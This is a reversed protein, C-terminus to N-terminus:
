SKDEITLYSMRGRVLLIKCAVYGKGLTRRHLVWFAEQTALLM